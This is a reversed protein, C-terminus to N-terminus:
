KKTKDLDVRDAPASGQDSGDDKPRANSTEVVNIANRKFLGVGEWGM